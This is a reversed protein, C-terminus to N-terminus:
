FSVSEMPTSQDERLGSYAELEAGTMEEYNSPLPDEWVVEDDSTFAVMTLSTALRDHPAVHMEVRPTEVAIAIPSAKPLDPKVAVSPSPLQSLSSNFYFSGGGVVVAIVAAAAALPLLRVKRRAVVPLSREARAPYADALYSADDSLQDALAALEDPLQDPVDTDSEDRCIRARFRM